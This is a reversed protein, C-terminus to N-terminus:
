QRFDQHCFGGLASLGKKREYITWQLIGYGKEDSDNYVYNPDHITAQSPSEDELNDNSYGSEERINAMVGVIQQGTLGMSKDLFTWILAFNKKQTSDLNFDSDLALNNLALSNYINNYKITVERVKDYVDQTLSGTESM